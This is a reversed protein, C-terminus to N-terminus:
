TKEATVALSITNVSFTVEYSPIPVGASASDAQNASGAATFEPWQPQDQADVPFTLRKRYTSAHIDWSTAPHVLVLGGDAYVEVTQGGAGDFNQQAANADAENDFVGLILGPGAEGSLADAFTITGGLTNWVYYTTTAITRDGGSAPTTVTFTFLTVPRGANESGLSAAVKRMNFFLLGRGFPGVDANPPTRYTPIAWMYLHTLMDRSIPDVVSAPVGDGSGFPADFLEFSESTFPLDHLRLTLADGRTAQLSYKLALIAPPGWNVNTITWHGGVRVPSEAFPADPM